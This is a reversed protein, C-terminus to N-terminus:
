TEGLERLYSKWNPELDMTAACYASMQFPAGWDFLPSLGIPNMSHNQCLAYFNNIDYADSLIIDLEWKLLLLPYFLNSELWCFKGRKGTGLINLFIREANLASKESVFLSTEHVRSSDQIHQFEHVVLAAEFIDFNDQKPLFLHNTFQPNTISFLLDANQLIHSEFTQKNIEGFFYGEIEELSFKKQPIAAIPSLIPRWTSYLLNFIENTFHAPVEYIKEIFFTLFKLIEDEQRSLYHGWFEALIQLQEFQSYQKTRQNQIKISFFHFYKEIATKLLFYETKLKPSLPIVHNNKILWSYYRLIISETKQSRIKNYQQILMFSTIIKKLYDHELYTIIGAELKEIFGSILNDKFLSDL